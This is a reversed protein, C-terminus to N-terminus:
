RARDLSGHIGMKHEEAGTSVGPTSVSWWSPPSSRATSRRSCRHVPRRVGSNTIWMKEGNSCATSATPRSRRAASRAWRTRGRRRGGTLAYAAWGSARRWAEAPVEGEAGADRLVGAAADRHGHADRARGHVSGAGGAVGGRHELDDQRRGARRVGRARGGVVAGAGGGAEVARAAGGAGQGRDGRGQAAGGQPHLGAGDAPDDAPRRQVARARVGADLRM